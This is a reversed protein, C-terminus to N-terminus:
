PFPRTSRAVSFFATQYILKQLTLKVGRLRCAFYRLSCYGGLVAWVSEMTAFAPDWERCWLSQWLYQLRANSHKGYGTAELSVLRETGSDCDNTRPVRSKFCFWCVHSTSVVEISSCIPWYVTLCMSLSRMSPLMQCNLLTRQHPVHKGITDAGRTRKRSAKCFSWNPLKLSIAPKHPM